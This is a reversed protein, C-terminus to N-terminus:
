KKLLSTWNLVFTFKTPAAETASQSLPFIFKEGDSSVDWYAFTVNNM